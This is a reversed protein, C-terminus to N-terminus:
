TIQTKKMSSNSHTSSLSFIKFITRLNEVHIKKAHFRLVWGEVRVCIDKSRSEKPKM